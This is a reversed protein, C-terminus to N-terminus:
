PGIVLDVPRDHTEACVSDFIQCSFVPALTKKVKGSYRELYRDYYGSGYGLRDGAKSVAVCPLIMLTRGDPEVLSHVEPNPELIGSKNRLMSAINTVEYFDM